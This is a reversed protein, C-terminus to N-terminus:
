ISKVNEDTILDGIYVIRRGFTHSKSSISNGGDKNPFTYSLEKWMLGDNYSKDIFSNIKQIEEMVEQQTQTEQQINASRNCGAVMMIVVCLGVAIIKAKTNKIM